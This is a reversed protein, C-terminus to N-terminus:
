VYQEYTVRRKNRLSMAANFGDFHKSAERRLELLVLVLVLVPIAVSIAIAIPLPHACRGTTGIAAGALRRGNRVLGLVLVSSAARGRGISMHRTSLINLLVELSESLKDM